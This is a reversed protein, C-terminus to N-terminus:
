DSTLNHQMIVVDVYRNFKYGVNKITGTYNFGLKKHLNISGINSSDGIVAIMQRHGSLKAIDILESLLMSGIGKGNFDPAIYISDEITFRYASRERFFSYYAYGVVQDGIKAVLFPFNQRIIKNYRNLMENVTPPEEEFTGLGNLVHYAYIEQIQKVEEIIASSVTITDTKEKMARNM